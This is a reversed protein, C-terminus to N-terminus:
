GGRIAFLFRSTIDPMIAGYSIVRKNDILKIGFEKKGGQKSWAIGIRGIADNSFKFGDHSKKSWLTFYAESSITGKIIM